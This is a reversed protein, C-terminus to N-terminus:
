RARPRSFEEGAINLGAAAPEFPQELRDLLATGAVRFVRIAAAAFMAVSAVASAVIGVLFCVGIITVM